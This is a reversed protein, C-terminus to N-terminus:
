QQRPPRYSERSADLRKKATVVNGARLSRVSSDAEANYARLM